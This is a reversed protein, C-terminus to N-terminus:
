WVMAALHSCVAMNVFRDAIFTL